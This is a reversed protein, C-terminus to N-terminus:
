SARVLEFGWWRQMCDDCFRCSSGDEKWLMLPVVREPIKDGCYSCSKSPRATAKGWVVKAWDFGEKPKLPESM